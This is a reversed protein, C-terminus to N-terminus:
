RNDTIKIKLFIVRSLADGIKSSDMSNKKERGTLIQEFFGAKPELLSILESHKEIRFQFFEAWGHYKSGEILINIPSGHNFKKWCSGERRCVIIIEDRNRLYKVPFSLENGSSSDTFWIVAYDESILRHASSQLIFKVLPDALNDPLPM